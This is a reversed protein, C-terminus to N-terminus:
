LTRTGPTSPRLGNEPLTVVLDSVELYMPAKQYDRVEGVMSEAVVTQAILPEIRNM